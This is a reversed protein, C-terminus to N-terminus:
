IKEGMLTLFEARTKPNDQFVGLMESTVAFSNQKQIGRMMMCLHQAHLVVAVGLADLNRMLCGAIQATMREQVQLRRAYAEVVRAIKSLGVIKENPIYAVHAKGFFPLMHHECMSYFDIDNVVIMEKGEAQFLAKRVMADPDMAYGGCIEGYARAVREPTKVLGERDPDEGIQELVQRILHEM